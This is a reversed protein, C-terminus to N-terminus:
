RLSFLDRIRKRECCSLHTSLMIYNENKAKKRENGIESNQTFM